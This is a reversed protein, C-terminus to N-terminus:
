GLAMATNFKTQQTLAKAIADGTSLSEQSSSSAVSASSDVVSPTTVPTSLSADNSSVVPTSSSEDNSQVGPSPATKVADAVSSNIVQASTENSTLLNNEINKSFDSFLEPINAVASEVNVVRKNVDDIHQMVSKKIESMKKESDIASVELDRKICVNEKKLEIVSEHIINM